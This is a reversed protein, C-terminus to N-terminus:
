RSSISQMFGILNVSALGAEEGQLAFSLTNQPPIVVCGDLHYQYAGKPTCWVFAPYMTSSAMTMGTGVGDWYYAGLDQSMLPTPASKMSGFGSQVQNATPAGDSFYMQGFLVAIHTSSGGNWNCWLSDIRFDEDDSNNVMWFMRGGNTPIALMPTTTGFAKDRGALKSIYSTTAARTLLEHDENVFAPIRLRPDEIQVAM